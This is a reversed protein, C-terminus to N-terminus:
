ATLGEEVLEDRYNRFLAADERGRRVGLFM